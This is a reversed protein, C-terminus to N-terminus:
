KKPKSDKEPANANAGQRPDQTGDRRPERIHSELGAAKLLKEYESQKLIQKFEGSRLVYAGNHLEVTGKLLGEKKIFPLPEKLTFEKM